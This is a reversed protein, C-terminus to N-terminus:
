LNFSDQSHPQLSTEFGPRLDESALDLVLSIHVHVCLSRLHAVFRSSLGFDFYIKKKKDGKGNLNCATAEKINCINDLVAHAIFM